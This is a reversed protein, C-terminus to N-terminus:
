KVAEIHHDHLVLVADVAARVALVDNRQEFRQVYRADHDKMRHQCVGRWPLAHDEILNYGRGARDDRHRVRGSRPQQVDIARARVLDEHYRVASGLTPDRRRQRPISAPGLDQGPPQQPWALPDLMRDIRHGEKAIVPQPDIILHGALSMRAYQSTIDLDVPQRELRPYSGSIDFIAHVEIGPEKGRSGQTM